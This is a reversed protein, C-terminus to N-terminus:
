NAVDNRVGQEESVRIDTIVAEGSVEGNKEFFRMKVPFLRYERALWIDLGEENPAHVKHLRVTLLKGLSTDIEENDTIEFNYREIKRGNSVYVTVVETHALPPFQYMISLIDQTEPPLATEGGHSFHARQTDHDLEVANRQTSVKDKREETFLEPILGYKGYSGNSYQNLEYSKFLRALGITTTTAKLVYRGDKIELMHVAEGVRLGGNGIHIAFTLRAHRPLPPREPITETETALTGSEEPTSAAGTDDAALPAEHTPLEPALTEPATKDADPKANRRPRHKAAVAPLAELKATLAPLSSELRPLRVNPEWLLLGHLLVSIGIAFALRRSPTDLKFNV